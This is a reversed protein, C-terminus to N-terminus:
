EEGSFSLIIQLLWSFINYLAVFLTVTATVYNREGGSVIAQIQYSILMASLVAFVTSVVLALVPIQFFVVNLISVIFAGILGFTILKGWSSLDKKTTKGYASMLLFIIGTGGLAMFVADGSGSAFAYEVLPSIFFGLLGTFVFTWFIGWGSNKTKEIAFLVAFYVGIFVFFGVMGVSQFMSSVSMQISLFAVIASWILTISLLGYTQSLVKNQESSFSKVAEM